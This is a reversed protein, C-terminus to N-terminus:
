NELCLDPLLMMTDSEDILLADMENVDMMGETNDNAFTLAALSSQDKSVTVFTDKLFEAMLADDESGVVGVDCGLLPNNNNAVCVINMNVPITDFFLPQDSIITTEDDSSSSYSSHDTETKVTTKSSSTCSSTSTMLSNNVITTDDDSVVTDYVSRTPCGKELEDDSDDNSM